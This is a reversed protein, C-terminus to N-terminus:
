TESVGFQEMLRQNMQMLTGMSKSMTEIQEKLSQIEQDKQQKAAFEPNLAELMKDCADIVEKHYDVSNIIDTSKQRLTYLEGNMADRSCSVVVNGNVGSDAIDASAPLGQLSTSQGGANVVVDVVMELPQYPAYPQASPYKPKPASVSAVIGQELYPTADKHLVYM